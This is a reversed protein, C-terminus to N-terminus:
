DVEDEAGDESEILPRHGTLKEKDSVKVGKNYDPDQESGQNFATSGANIDEKHTIGGSQDANNRDKKDDM